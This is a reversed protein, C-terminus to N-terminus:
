WKPAGPHGGFPDPDAGAEAADEEELPDDGADAGPMAGGRKGLLFEEGAEEFKM